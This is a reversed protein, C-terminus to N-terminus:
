RRVCGVAYANTRAGGYLQAERGRDSPTLDVGYRQPAYDAAHTREHAGFCERSCFRREKYRFLQENERRKIPADCGVCFRQEYPQRAWGKGRGNRAAVQAASRRAHGM